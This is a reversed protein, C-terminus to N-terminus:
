KAFSEFDSILVVSVLNIIIYENRGEGREQGEGNVGVVCACASYCGKVSAVSTIPCWFCLIYIKLLLYRGDLVCLACSFVCILVTGIKNDAM